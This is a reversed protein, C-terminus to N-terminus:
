TVATKLNIRLNLLSPLAPRWVPQVPPTWAALCRRHTQLGVSCGVQLDASGTLPYARLLDRLLQASCLNLERAVSALCHSGLQLLFLASWGIPKEGLLFGRELIGSVGRLSSFRELFLHFDYGSAPPGCDIAVFRPRRASIGPPRQDSEIRNITVLPNLWSGAWRPNSRAPLSSQLLSRM